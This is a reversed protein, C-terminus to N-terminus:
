VLRSIDVYCQNRYINATPDFFFPDKNHKTKASFLHPYQVM